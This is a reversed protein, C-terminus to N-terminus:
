ITYVLKTASVRGARMEDMGKMVGELGSGAKNVVPDVPKVIGKELLDRTLEYFMGAFELEEDDPPFYEGALEFPEGLGRYALTWYPGSVLPNTAVLLEKCTEMSSPAVITGYMGPESDSLAEACLKEGGGICDWAHRLKNQTYKRIDAGCNPSRYDFVADAGLSRLLDFNHPSCTAIVTLGSAKAYKIGWM